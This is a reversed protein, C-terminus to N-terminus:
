GRVWAKSQKVFDDWCKASQAGTLRIHQEDVQLLCLLVENARTESLGLMRFDQELCKIDQTLSAKFTNGLTAVVQYERPYRLIKCLTYCQPALYALLALVGKTMSESDLPEDVGVKQTQRNWTQAFHQVKKGYDILACVKELLDKKLFKQWKEHVRQLYYLLTSLKSKVSGEKCLWCRMDEDFERQHFNLLFGHLQAQAFWTQSSQQFNDMSLMSQYGQLHTSFDYYFGQPKYVKVDDGWSSDACCIFASEAGVTKLDAYMRKDMDDSLHAYRICRLPYTYVPSFYRILALFVMKIPGLPAIETEDFKALERCMTCTKQLDQDM